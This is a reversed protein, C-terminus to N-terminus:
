TVEGFHEFFVTKGSEASELWKHNLLEDASARKQPNLKCCKQRFEMLDPSWKAISKPTM